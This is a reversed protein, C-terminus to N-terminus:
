KAIDEPNYYVPVCLVKGAQRMKKYTHLYYKIAPEDNFKDISESRTRDFTCTLVGSGRGRFVVVWGCRKM